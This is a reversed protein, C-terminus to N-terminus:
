YRHKFSESLMFNHVSDFKKIKNKQLSDTYNFNYSDNYSFSNSLENTQNSYFSQINNQESNSIIEDIIREM